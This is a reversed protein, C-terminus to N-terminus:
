LRGARTRPRAWEAHPQVVPALPEPNPVVPEDAVRGCHPCPRQTFWRRLEDIREDLRENDVKWGQNLYLFLAMLGVGVLLPKAPELPLLESWASFGASVSIGVAFGVAGSVWRDSNM